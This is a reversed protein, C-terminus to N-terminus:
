WAHFSHELLDKGADVLCKNGAGLLVLFCEPSTQLGRFDRLFTNLSHILKSLPYLHDHFSFTLDVPGM